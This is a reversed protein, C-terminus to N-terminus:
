RVGARRCEQYTLTYLNITRVRHANGSPVLDENPDPEYEINSNGWERAKLTACQQQVFPLESEPIVRGKIVVEAMAPAVMAAVLATSVAVLRLSM